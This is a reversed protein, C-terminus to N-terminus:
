KAAYAGVRCRIAMDTHAGLYPTRIKIHTQDEVVAETRLDNLSNVLKIWRLRPRRLKLTTIPIPDLTVLGTLSYTIGVTQRVDAWPHLRLELGISVENKGVSYTLRM